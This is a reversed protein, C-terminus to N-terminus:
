IFSLRLHSRPPLYIYEFLSRAEYNSYSPMPRAPGEARPLRPLSPLRKKKKKKKVATNLHTRFRWPPLQVEVLRRAALKLHSPDELGGGGERAAEARSNHNAAGTILSIVKM